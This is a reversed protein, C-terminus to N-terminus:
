QRDSNSNPVTGRKKPQSIEGFHSFYFHSFQWFEVIRKEGCRFGAKLETGLM